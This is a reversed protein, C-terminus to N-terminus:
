DMEFITATCRNGDTEFKVRLRDPRASLLHDNYWSPKIEVERPPSCCSTVIARPFKQKQIATLGAEIQSQWVDVSAECDCSSHLTALIRM